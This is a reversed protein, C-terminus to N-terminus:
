DLVEMFFGNEEYVIKIRDGQKAPSVKSLSTIAKTRGFEM